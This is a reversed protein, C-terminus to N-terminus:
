KTPATPWIITRPFGAQDPIATLAEAYNDLEIIKGNAYAKDPASSALRFARQAMLIGPDYVARLIADRQMRASAALEADTSDPVEPADPPIFVGDVYSWGAGVSLGDPIEIASFGEPPSWGSEETGDWVTVNEVVNTENNVLAYNVDIVM